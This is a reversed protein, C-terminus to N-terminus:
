VVSKRDGPAMFNTTSKLVMKVWNLHIKQPTDKISPSITAAMPSVEIVLSLPSPNELQIEHPCKITVGFGFTPVKSSSFLKQTKQKLTLEAHEMGPLLRQTQVRHQFTRQVLEHSLPRWYPQQVYVPLMANHTEQSGGRHYRLLSELYYEVFCESSTSWGSSSSYFTGPLCHEFVNNLPLYSEINEHDRAVSENPRTPITISFPWSLSGQGAPLHLPGRHITQITHSDILSWRGRYHETRNGQQTHHEKTIKTKVRGMLYITVTADPAVIPTRRNVSGIITDGPSFAWLPSPTALSIQLAPSGERETRPMNHESFPSLAINPPNLSVPARYM